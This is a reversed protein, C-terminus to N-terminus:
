HDNRQEQQYIVGEGQREPRLEGDPQRQGGQQADGQQGEQFAADNPQAPGGPNDPRIGGSRASSSERAIPANSGSSPLDVASCTSRASTARMAPVPAG